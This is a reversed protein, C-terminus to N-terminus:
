EFGLLADLGITLGPRDAIESIALLVGPMFSTRDISDHRISLTQGPGGFLVEEHAVLGPLRVSHVPIGDVIAGRAGPVTETEKGPEVPVERRAAAIREATMKATGSPADKKKDHHLEVVEAAPLWRAATESLRMLLVAGIAFNPAVLCNAKGGETLERLRDLQAAELGTTGIVCHVGTRLASVANEFAASAVTFDVLVDAPHEALAEGVSAAAPFAGAGPVEMIGGAAKPDAVGVVTMGREATVARVVEAGMQGAAGAVVVRIDESM